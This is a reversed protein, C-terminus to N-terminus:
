SVCSCAMLDGDVQIIGNKGDVYDGESKDRDAGGIYVKYM